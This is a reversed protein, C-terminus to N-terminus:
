KIIKDHSEQYAKAKDKLVKKIFIDRNRFETKTYSMVDQPLSSYVTSTYLYDINNSLLLPAVKKSGYSLFIEDVTNKRDSFNIGHSSLTGNSSLFMPRDSLFSVYPTEYDATLISHEVLVIANPPTNNKLYSLAALEEATIINGKEKQISQINVFLVNLVRTSTLIILIVIVIVIYFIKGNIKKIWYNAANATYFSSFIFVSVLFIFSNPGGSQQQFCFGLVASVFIGSLLFVNLESPFSTLSKKTQILGILKTGFVTVIFLYIFILEYEIVRLWNHHELYIQRALELRELRMWPQVVFNEFIYLGTFYLGGANSNSPVYMSISFFLAIPLLYLFKYKKKILFYSSLFLLGIISFIGIYVKYGITSGLMFAALIGLYKDKRKLWYMPFIVGAMFIIIAFARPPNVLFKAGDELSSMKFNIERRM